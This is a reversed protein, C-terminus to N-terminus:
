GQMKERVREMRYVIRALKLIDYDYKEKLHRYIPALKEDGVTEIAGLVEKYLVDWGNPKIHEIDDSSLEGRAALTEIHGLITREQLDRKQAIDSLIMASKLLNKTEEHTNKDVVARKKVAGPKPWKHGLGGVFEQQIEKIRQLRNEDTFAREVKGSEARFVADQELVTESVKLATQNLGEIKMGRLTKVRSLAVYGQGEEFAASLDIIAADLSAGQSKHITIAWALRLPVQKISARVKGGEIVEWEMPFVKIRVGSYTEVAPLGDEEFDVVTGLTGNMFHEGPNNKTFMVMAGKKLDLREPSICGKMLASVLAGSGKTTMEFTHTEGALADLAVKNERDVVNNHTHLQTPVSNEYGIEKQEMLLQHHGAELAGDRIARLVNLLDKDEQRYQDTLYCILFGADRWANSQFAYVAATSTGEGEEKRVVPPLQFFDGSVVVQIGGFPHSNGKAARCVKDVADLTDANLMSIEDIILVETGNVRRYTPERSVIEEAISKTIPARIGIGSWSHITRGGIHTAAIGTSATIAVTMGCLDLWNIYQNILHTKGAGPEGTLFINKGTKLVELAEKQNM